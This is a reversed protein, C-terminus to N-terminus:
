RRRSPPTAALQAVGAGALEAVMMWFRSVLAVV